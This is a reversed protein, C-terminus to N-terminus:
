GDNGDQFELGMLMDHGLDHDDTVNSPAGKESYEENQDSYQDDPYDGQPGVTPKISEVLTKLLLPVEKLGELTQDHLSVSKTLEGIQHLYNPSHGCDDSNNDTM